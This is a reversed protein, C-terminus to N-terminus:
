TFTLYGGIVDAENVAERLSRDAVHTYIETTTLSAHGLLRQVFRIDVGSEILQTAATHRLMHPTLPVSMGSREGARALRTRLASTSLAQGRRNLLLPVDTQGRSLHDHAYSGVAQALRDNSIYVYRERLGKGLVRITRSELDLQDLRTSTLEGVRMGTGVLILVALLTTANVHGETGVLPSQEPDGFDATASLHSILRGLDARSVARPLRRPRAFRLVVGTTPNSPVADVEALWHCFSRVGCVRRRVTTSSAGAHTLDEVFGYIHATDIRDTRFDSGLFRELAGVDSVYAQVTHPSLDQTSRLWGEYQQRARHITM